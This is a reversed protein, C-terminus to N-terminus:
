PLLSRALSETLKVVLLAVRPKVARRSHASFSPKLPLSRSSMMSFEKSERITSRSGDYREFSANPFATPRSIVRAFPM